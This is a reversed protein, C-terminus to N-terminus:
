IFIFDIKMIKIIKYALIFAALIMGIVWIYTWSFSVAQESIQETHIMTSGDSFIPSIEGIIVEPLRIIMPEPVIAKLSEFKLFPLTLSLFATGILYARNWNFFTENKLFM